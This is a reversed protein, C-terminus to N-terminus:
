GRWMRQSPLPRPRPVGSRKYRADCAECWWYSERPEAKGTASNYTTPHYCKVMPSGCTSCYEKTRNERLVQGVLSLLWLAVVGLAVGVVSDSISICM